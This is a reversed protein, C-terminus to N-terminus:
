NEGSQDKDEDEYDINDYDGNIIKEETVHNAFMLCNVADDIDEQRWKGKKLHSIYDGLDKQTTLLNRM